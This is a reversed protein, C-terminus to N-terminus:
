FGNNSISFCGSVSLQRQWLCDAKRNCGQAHGSNQKNQWRGKAMSDFEMGYVAVQVQYSVVWLPWISVWDSVIRTQVTGKLAHRRTPADPSVGCRRDLPSTYVNQDPRAPHPETSGTVEKELYQVKSERKCTAQQQAARLTMAWLFVPSCISEGKIDHLPFTM